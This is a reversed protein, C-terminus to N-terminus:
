RIPPVILRAALVLLVLVGIAGVWGVQLHRRVAVPPYLRDDVVIRPALLVGTAAGGLLGGLHAVNDIIGPSSFGIFLNIMLVTILSGLQARALQGLVARSAYYFVALAGILGFIAGSAGVSNSPTLAYSAVSGALGSIFYIAVFRGTGFLREVEQGLVYLAWSNFALHLLGGHLFMATLLRYYEGGLFIAANDKAGLARVVVSPPFGGIRVGLVDALAPVAWIIVNLVLPIYFAWARSLPLQLRVM